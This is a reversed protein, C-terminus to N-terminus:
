DHNKQAENLANFIEKLHEDCGDIAINANKWRYYAIGSKYSEQKDECKNCSM